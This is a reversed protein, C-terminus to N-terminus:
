ARQAERVTKFAAEFKAERLNLFVARSVNGSDDHIVGYTRSCPVLVFRKM